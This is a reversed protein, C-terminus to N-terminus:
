RLHPVVWLYGLLPHLFLNFFIAQSADGDQPQLWFMSQGRSTSENIQSVKSLFSLVREHRDRPMRSADLMRRGSPWRSDGHTQSRCVTDKSSCAFFRWGQRRVLGVLPRMSSTCCYFRAAISFRPQKFMRSFASLVFSALLFM